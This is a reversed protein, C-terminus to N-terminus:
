ITDRTILVRYHGIFSYHIQFIHFPAKHKWIMPYWFQVPEKSIDMDKRPPLDEYVYSCVIVYALYSLM